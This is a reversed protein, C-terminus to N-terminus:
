RVQYTRHSKGPTPVSPLTGALLAVGPGRLM